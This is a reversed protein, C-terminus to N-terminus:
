VIIGARELRDPDFEVTLKEAALNVAARVIGPLSAVGKEIAGACNACTMGRIRLVVKERGTPLVDSVDPERATTERDGGTEGEPVSFGAKEAQMKSVCIAAAM